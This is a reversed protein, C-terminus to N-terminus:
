KMKRISALIGSIGALLLIIYIPFHSGDGTKPANKESSKPEIPFEVGVDTKKKMANEVTACLAEGEETICFTYERENLIYGAPAKVERYAYIGPKLQEILLVGDAGTKGSHLIEGEENTIVFEAGSLVEGTEQDVKTLKLSGYRPKEPEEPRQPTQPETPKGPKEPLRDNKVGSIEVSLVKADSHNREYTKATTHKVTVNEPLLSSGDATIQCQLKEDGTEGGGVKGDGSVAGSGSLYLNGSGDMEAGMTVGDSFHYVATQGKKLVVSQSASVPNGDVNISNVNGKSHELTVEGEESHGARVLIGSTEKPSIMELLKPLEGEKERLWTAETLWNSRAVKPTYSVVTVGHDAGVTFNESAGDGAHFVPMQGELKIRYSMSEASVEMVADNEWRLVATKGNKVTVQGNSRGDLVSIRVTEDETNRSLAYDTGDINVAPMKYQSLADFDIIAGTKGNQTVTGCVGLEKYDFSFRGAALVDVADFYYKTHNVKYGEPASTEKVYYKGLPLKVTASAQGDTVELKGVLTDPAIGMTESSEATFIGFVAGSGSQYKGTGFGTEFLKELDIQLSVAENEYAATDWILPTYQNEYTVQMKKWQGRNVFGEATSIERVWYTGLPLLGSEAIGDDGSTIIEVPKGAPYMMTDDCSIFRLTGSSGDESSLSVATTTDPYTIHFCADESSAKSVMEITYYVAKNEQGPKHRRARVYTNEDYIKEYFSQNEMLGEYWPVNEGMYSIGPLVRDFQSIQSQAVTLKTHTLKGSLYMETRIGDHTMFYVQAAEAPAATFLIKDKERRCTYGEATVIKPRNEDSCLIETVAKEEKHNATTQLNVAEDWHLSFGDSSNYHQAATFAYEQVYSKYFHGDKDCPIWRKLLGETVLIQYNGKGDAALYMDDRPALSWGSPMVVEAPLKQEGSEGIYPKVPKAAINDTRYESLIGTLEDEPLNAEGTLENVRVRNGNEYHMTVIGVTDDGSKLVPETVKIEPLYDDAISEKWLHVDTYYFGGKAYNMRYEVRYRFTMKSKEDRVTFSDSFSAGDAARARYETVTKNAKGFGQLTGKDSTRLLFAGDKLAIESKEKGDEIGGHDRYTKEFTLARNSGTEYVKVPLVGDSQVIDEAAYIEFKADKLAAKGFIAQWIGGSEKWGTLQEGEKTVRLKGMVPNNAIELIAYYKVYDKGDEHPSQELVSFTYSNYTTDSNGSFNTVPNGKEDTVKVTELFEKPPKVSQGHHDVIKIEGMDAATGVGKEDFAGVYYGEPVVLEQLEYIGYELEYPLVIEGNEDAYFTYDQGADTYSSGNPLWKGYNPSAAPDALDPNGLYRIQFATRAADWRVTKGTLLNTKVVKIKNKKAQNNVAASEKQGDKSITVRFSELVYGNEDAAIEEVVYTGYPLDKVYLQGDESLHLPHNADAPIGSGDKTTQYTRTYKGYSDQEVGKDIVRIYPCGEFGESELRITWKSNTSYGKKGNDSSTRDTFPNQDDKTKVLQLDGRYVDNTYAYDDTEDRMRQPCELDIEEAETLVAGKGDEGEYSIRYEMKGHNRRHAYYSIVGHSRTGSGGTVMEAHRGAPIGTEKTTVNKEGRWYYDTHLLTGDDAYAPQEEYTLESVDEWPTFVFPNDETSGYVTLQRSDILMGDLYLSIESDLAADGMGTHTGEGDYDWGRNYDRKETDFSFAPLNPEEGEAEDGDDPIEKLKFYFDVPDDGGIAITQLPQASPSNQWVLLEDTVAEPINKKGHLASSPLSKGTYSLQYGNKSQGFRYERLVTDEGDKTRVVKLDRRCANSDKLLYYDAKERAAAREAATMKKRYASNVAKWMTGGSKTEVQEMYITKAREKEKSSFSPIVRHQKMARLMAFYIYRAPRGRLVNYHFDYGEGGSPNVTGLVVKGNQTQGLNEPISSLRKRYGDTFEWIITQTAIWWDDMNCESVHSSYHGLLDKLDEKTSQPQKGYILATKVARQVEDSYNKIRLATNWTKAYYQTSGNHPNDMNRELCYGRVTKGGNIPTICYAYRHGSTHYNYYPSGDSGVLESGNKFYAKDGVKWGNVAGFVDKPICSLLLVFILFVAIGRKSQMDRTQRLM